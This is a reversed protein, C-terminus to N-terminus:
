RRMSLLADRIRAPLLWAGVRRFPSVRSRKAFEGPEGTAPRSAARNADDDTGVARDATPPGYRRFGFAEVVRLRDVPPHVVPRQDIVSRYVELTARVMAAMAPKQMTRGHRGANALAAANAPAVLSVIRDLLRAEDRWEREDLVWGAGHDGVREVLAGIPPVLVPLGAAWVESLTFAFTEPGMSPFLVLRAGYHELLEPLDIPDYRGHVTLRADDSQWAEHVRDTYGIVVFRM